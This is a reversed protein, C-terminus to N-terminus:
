PTLVSVLLYQATHLGKYSDARTAGRSTDHMAAYPDLAMESYVTGFSDQAHSSPPLAGAM